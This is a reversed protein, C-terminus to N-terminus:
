CHKTIGTLGAPTESPKRLTNQQRLPFLHCMVLSFSNMVDGSTEVELIFWPTFRDFLWLNCSDSIILKFFSLHSFHESMLQAVVLFQVTFWM